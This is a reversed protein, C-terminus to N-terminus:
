LLSLFLLPVHSFPCIIIVLVRNCFSDSVHYAKFYRLARKASQNPSWSDDTVQIKLVGHPRGFQLCDTVIWLDLEITKHGYCIAVGVEMDIKPARRNEIM